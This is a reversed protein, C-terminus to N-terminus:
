IESKSKYICIFMQKTEKSTMFLFATYLLQELQDVVNVNIDLKPTLYM